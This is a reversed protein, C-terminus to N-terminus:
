LAVWSAKKGPSSAFYQGRRASLALGPLRLKM